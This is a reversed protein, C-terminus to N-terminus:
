LNLMSEMSSSSSFSIDDSVDDSSSSSSDVECFDDSSSSSSDVKCFDDPNVSANRLAFAKTSLHFLEYTYIYRSNIKVAKATM